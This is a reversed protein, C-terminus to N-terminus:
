LRTVTRNWYAWARARKTKKNTLHSIILFILFFFRPLLISLFLVKISAPYPPLPDSAHITQALVKGLADHLSVSIPPLRKSANLVTQLADTVSIM